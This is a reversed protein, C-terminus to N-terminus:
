PAFHLVMSALKFIKQKYEIIAVICNTFIVYYKNHTPAHCLNQLTISHLMDVGITYTVLFTM